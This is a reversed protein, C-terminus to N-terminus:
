AIHLATTLFPTCPPVPNSPFPGFQTNSNGTRGLLETPKRGVSISANVFPRRYTLPSLRFIRTITKMHRVPDDLTTGLLCFEMEATNTRMKFCRVGAGYIVEQIMLSMLPSFIRGKLDWMFAALGGHGGNELPKPSNRFTLERM